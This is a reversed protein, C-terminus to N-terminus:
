RLEAKILAAFRAVAEDSGGEVVECRRGVREPALTSVVAVGGEPGAPGLGLDAVSLETFPKKGAQLIDRMGPIRPTAIGSTVSVVAPLPVELVETVSAATRAVTVAARDPGGGAEIRGVGNVAPWGLAGGLQNGVEQQYSDASGAGAVVLDVDGMLGLAARLVQATAWTDLGELGPGVVAVLSDLGRSLIDKRLKAGAVAAGGVTVGVLEGGVADVFRRAAEVAALDYAGFSWVARDFSLTGDPRAEIGEADPTAKVLAVVRMAIGREEEADIDFPRPGRL